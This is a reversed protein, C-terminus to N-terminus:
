SGHAAHASGSPTSSIPVVSDQNIFGIWHKSAGKPIVWNSLDEPKIRSLEAKDAPSTGSRAIRLYQNRISKMVLKRVDRANGSHRDRLKEYHDCYNKIIRVADADPMLGEDALHHAAIL